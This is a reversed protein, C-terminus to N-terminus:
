DMKEQVRTLLSLCAAETKGTRTALERSKARLTPFSDDALLIRALKRSEEKDALKWTGQGPQGRPIRELHLEGEEVSRGTYDIGQSHFHV